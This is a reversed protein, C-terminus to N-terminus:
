CFHLTRTRTNHLFGLSDLSVGHLADGELRVGIVVLVEEDCQFTDVMEGLDGRCTSDLLCRGRLAKAAQRNGWTVM